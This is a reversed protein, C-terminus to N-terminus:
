SDVQETDFHSRLLRETQEVLYYPLSVLTYDYRDGSPMAGTATVTSPPLNSFRLGFPSKKGPLVPAIISAKGNLRSEGRYSYHAPGFLNRFRGRCQVTDEGEGMSFNHQELAFDLLSGAAIVHLGPLKEYFYRLKAFVRPAAQIEGFFLLTDGQKISCGYQLELLSVIKRPEPQDFLSVADKNNELDIELVNSFNEKGFALIIHM